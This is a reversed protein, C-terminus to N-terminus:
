DTQDHAEDRATQAKSRDRGAAQRSKSAAGSHLDSSDAPVAEAAWEHGQAVQENLHASQDSSTARDRASESMVSANGVHWSMLFMAIARHIVRGGWDATLLPGDGACGHWPDPRASGTEQGRNAM